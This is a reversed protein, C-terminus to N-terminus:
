FYSLYTTLISDIQDPNLGSIASWNKKVAVELAGKCCDFHATNEPKVWIEFTGKKENVNFVGLCCNRSQEGFRTKQGKAKFKEVWGKLWTDKDFGTVAPAVQAAVPAPPVPPGAPTPVAAPVPPPAEQPFQLYPVLYAYEANQQLLEDTWGAAIMQDYTFHGPKPEPYIKIPAPPSPAVAGPVPGPLTATGMGEPAAQAVVPAPTPAPAVPAAAPAAVPPAVPPAVAPATPAVPAAVPPAVPAPIPAATPAVPNPAVPPTVPQVPQPPICPTGPAPTHPVGPPPFVNPAAHDTYGAPIPATPPAAPPAATPAVPAATPAAPPVPQAAPAAPGQSPATAEMNIESLTKEQDKKIVAPISLQDFRALLQVYLNEDRAPMADVTYAQGFTNSLLKCFVDDPVGEFDGPEAARLHNGTMNKKAFKDLVGKNTSKAVAQASELDVLFYTNTAAFAM